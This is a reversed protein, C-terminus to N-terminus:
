LADLLHFLSDVSRRGRLLHELRSDIGGFDPRALRERLVRSRDLAIERRDVRAEVLRLLRAALTM